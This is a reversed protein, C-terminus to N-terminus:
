QREDHPCGNPLGYWIRQRCRCRSRRSGSSSDSAPVRTCRATSSTKGVQTRAMIGEAVASEFARCCSGHVVHSAAAHAAAAKADAAAKDQAAKLADQAAQASASAASAASANTSPAPSPLPDLSTAPVPPYDSSFSSQPLALFPIAVLILAALKKMSRARTEM